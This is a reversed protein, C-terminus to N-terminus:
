IVQNRERIVHCTLKDIIRTEFNKHRAKLHVRINALKHSEYCCYACKFRPPKNCEYRVHHTFHHKHKFTKDCRPNTCAIRKEKNVNESKGSRGSNPLKIRRFTAESFYLFM